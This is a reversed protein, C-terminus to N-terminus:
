RGYHEVKDIGAGEVAGLVRRGEEHDQVEELVAGEGRVLLEEERGVEGRVQGESRREKILVVLTDEDGKLIQYENLAGRLIWVLCAYDLLQPRQHSLHNLYLYFLM